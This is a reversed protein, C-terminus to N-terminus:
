HYPLSPGRSLRRFRRLEENHDRIAFSFLTTIRIIAAPNIAFFTYVALHRISNAAPRSDLPHLPFLFLPAAPV